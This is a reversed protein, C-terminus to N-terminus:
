FGDIPLAALRSTLLRPLSKIGKFEGQRLESAFRQITELCDAPSKGIMAHTLYKKSEIDNVGCAECAEELLSLRERRAIEVSESKAKAIMREGIATCEDIQRSEDGDVPPHHVKHDNGSTKIITAAHRSSCMGNPPVQVLRTAADASATERSSSSVDATTIEHPFIITYENALSRGTKHRGGSVWDLFSKERLEVLANSIATAKLHTAAAITERKPFCRGTKDDARHALYALVAQATPSTGQIEAYVREAFKFGM